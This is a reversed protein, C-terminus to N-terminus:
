GGFDGCDHIDFKNIDEESSYYEKIKLRAGPNMGDKIQLRYILPGQNIKELVMAANKYRVEIHQNKMTLKEIDYEMSNTSDCINSFRVSGNIISINALDCDYCMGSTSIGFKKHINKSSSDVIEVPVLKLHFAINNKITDSSSTSVSIVPQDSGTNHQESTSGQNCSYIM